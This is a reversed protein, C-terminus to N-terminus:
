ATYLTPFFIFRPTSMPTPVKPERPATRAIVGGCNPVLVDADPPKDPPDEVPVVGAGAAVVVAGVGVGVGAAVFDEAGAAVCDADGLAVGLAVAVFFAVGVGVGVFLAAGAGVGVFVAVGVGVGVGVCVCACDVPADPVNVPAVKGASSYPRLQPFTCTVTVNLFPTMADMLPDCFGDLRPYM